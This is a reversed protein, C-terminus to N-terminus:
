RDKSWVKRAAFFCSFSLRAPKNWRLPRYQIELKKFVLAMAMPLMVMILEIRCNQSILYRMILMTYIWATIISFHIEYFCIEKHTRCGYLFIRFSLKTIHFLNKLGNNLAVFNGNWIKRYTLFSFGFCCVNFKIYNM